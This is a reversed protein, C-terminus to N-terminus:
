KKDGTAKKAAKMKNSLWRRIRIQIKFRRRCVLNAILRM